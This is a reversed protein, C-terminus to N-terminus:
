ISGLSKSFNTLDTKIPNMIANQTINNYSVITFAALVGYSLLTVVLLEVVTFARRFTM